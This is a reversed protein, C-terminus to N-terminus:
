RQISTAAIKTGHLTYAVGTAESVYFATAPPLAPPLAYRAIERGDQALEVVVRAAGDLLYVDQQTELAQILTPRVAPGSWRPTFDIRAVTGKLPDRRFRQIQGDTTALWVDANVALSVVSGPALPQALYPIAADFSRGDPSEYKLLAGKAPQFVYLNTGFTALMPREGWTSADPPTVDAVQDGASMWLRGAADLAYVTAGASTLTVPAGVGGTGTQMIIATQLPDGFIHWVRGAGPDAVYLGNATGILATPRSAADLRSTDFAVGDIRDILSGIDTRLATIQDRDALPYAAAQDLKGSASLLRSRATEPDPPTRTVLAHASTILDGAALMSLRYDREARTSEYDRYAVAGVAVSALLLLIALLSVARRQRRSRERATDPHRPLAARRRPLLEVGVGVATGGLRTVPATVRRVLAGIRPRRRWVADVGSRIREAIVVEDPEVVPAPEPALRGAAGGRSLEIFIAGDSGVVGDAVARNHVHAAAASPHLTVAASKLEDAGFGEVLAGSALVLTDGPEIRQRWVKPLVDPETGLSGADRPTTRHVFDALEGPEGGPLFLRARRVLFVQAAGIRAGYIETNVVVVCAVHLTAGRHDRLRQAARRNAQRLARRLSVEIGASLDHYYEQEALQAVERAVAVAPGPPSVECLLYLRGKTRLTAGTEPEHVVVAEGRSPRVDATSGVKTTFSATPM